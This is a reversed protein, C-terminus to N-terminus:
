PTIEYIQVRIKDVHLYLAFENAPKDPHEQEVPRPHGKAPQHSKKEPHDQPMQRYVYRATSRPAGGVLRAGAPPPLALNNKM